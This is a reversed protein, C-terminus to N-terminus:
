SENMGGGGLGQRCWREVQLEKKKNKFLIILIDDTKIKLVDVAKNDCASSNELWQGM